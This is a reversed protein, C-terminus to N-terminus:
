KLHAPCPAPHPCSLAPHPTPCPGPHSLLPGPHLGGKEGKVPEM